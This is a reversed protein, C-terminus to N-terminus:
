LTAEEIIELYTNYMEDCAADLEANNYLASLYRPNISMVQVKGAREVITIRCPLFLGLRPDVALVKNLTEFNCFFVMVENNNEKGKEVLGQELAQTRIIRFNKAIAAAKVQEITTKLDHPSDMIIVAQEGPKTKPAQTGTRTEFSRIYSVVDNIDQETMGQKLFSQMPTGERGNMLTSKILSDSAASLFGSNNLGPAIIPLDRPRSFTVGTGKGGEGNAGHCSACRQAYLAKGRKADGSVILGNDKLPTATSYGRVHKVIAKIQADSLHNFGPMVRGPRGFRITKTLYDDSVSSQFSDLALPVGMGGKGNHGHCSACHKSFLAAGSPAAQVASGYSLMSIVLVLVPKIMSQLRFPM